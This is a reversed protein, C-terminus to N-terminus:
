IGGPPGPDADTDLEQEPLEDRLLQAVTQLALAVGGIPMALQPLYQPVSLLSNSRIDFSWSYHVFRASAYILVLAFVLTVLLAFRDLWPKAAPRLHSLFTIRFHSGSGLAMANALFGAAIFAYLSTEFVWITPYGFYRAVADYAVPFPLIALLAIALWALARGAAELPAAIRERMGGNGADGSRIAAGM